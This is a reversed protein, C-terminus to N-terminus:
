RLRRPLLIAWRYTGVTSRGAGTTGMVSHLPRRLEVLAARRLYMCSSSIGKVPTLFCSTELNQNRLAKLRRVLRVKTEWIENVLSSLLPLNQTPTESPPQSPLHTLSSSPPSMLEFRSIYQWALLQTAGRCLGHKFPTAPPSIM